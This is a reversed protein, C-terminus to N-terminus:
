EDEDSFEEIEQKLGHLLRKLETKTKKEDGEM